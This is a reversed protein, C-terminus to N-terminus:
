NRAQDQSRDKAPERLSLRSQNTATASISAMGCVRDSTTPLGGRILDLKVPGRYPQLLCSAQAPAAIVMLTAAFSLLSLARALSCTM